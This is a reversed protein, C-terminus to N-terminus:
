LRNGWLFSIIVLAPDSIARGKIQQKQYDDVTLDDGWRLITPSIRLM